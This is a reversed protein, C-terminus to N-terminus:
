SLGVSDTGFSLAFVARSEEFAADITAGAVTHNRIICFGTTALTDGLQRAFNEKQFTWDSLNLRAVQVSTTPSSNPVNEPMPM